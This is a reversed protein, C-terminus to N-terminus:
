RCYSDKYAVSGIVGPGILLQSCKGANYIWAANYAISISNVACLVGIALGVKAGLSTCHTKVGNAGLIATRLLSTENRTTKITPLVGEWAFKPDAVVPYATGAQDHDVYQVLSGSEIAYRTPIDVGNADKAWPPLIASLLEGEATLVAFMGDGIEEVSGGAPIDLSYEYRTPAAENEIITNIQLSGDEKVVPVTTSGDGNDYSVVGETEAVASAAVDGSPLGIGLQGTAGALTIGESPDAPVELSVDGVLADISNVGAADTPVDAIQELVEPAVEGIVALPSPDMEEASAPAASLLSIVVATVAIGMCAKTKSTRVM